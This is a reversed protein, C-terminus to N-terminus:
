KCLIKSVGWWWSELDYYLTHIIPARVVSWAMFAAVALLGLDVLKSM